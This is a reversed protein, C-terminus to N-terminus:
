LEQREVFFVLVAVVALILSPIIVNFKNFGSKPSSTKKSGQIKDNTSTFHPRSKGGM